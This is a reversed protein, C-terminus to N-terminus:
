GKWSQWYSKGDIISYWPTILLANPFSDNKFQHHITSTKIAPSGHWSKWEHPLPLSKKPCM